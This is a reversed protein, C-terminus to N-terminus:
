AGLSFLDKMREALREALTEGHKNRGALVELHAKGVAERRALIQSLEAAIAPREKLIPAIDNKAIEYVVAKTLATVKFMTAARFFGVLLWSAAWSAPELGDSQSVELIPQCMDFHFGADQTLLPAM